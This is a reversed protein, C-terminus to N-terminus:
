FKTNQNLRGKYSEDLELSFADSLISNVVNDTGTIQQTAEHLADVSEKYGEGFVATETLITYKVPIVRQFITNFAEIVTLPKLLAEFNAKETNDYTKLLAASYNQSEAGWYNQIFFGM